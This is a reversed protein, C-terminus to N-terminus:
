LMFTGCYKIHIQAHDGAPVTQGSLIAFLLGKKHTDMREGRYITNGVSGGFLGM